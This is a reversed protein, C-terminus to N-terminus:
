GMSRLISTKTVSEIKVFKDSPTNINRKVQM